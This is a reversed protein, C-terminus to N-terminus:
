GRLENRPVVDVRRELGAPADSPRGLHRGQPVKYTNNMAVQWQFPLNIFHRRQSGIIHGQDIIANGSSMLRLSRM